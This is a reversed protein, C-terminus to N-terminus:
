RPRWDGLVAKNPTEEEQSQVDDPCISIYATKSKAIMAIYGRQHIACPCEGVGAWKM